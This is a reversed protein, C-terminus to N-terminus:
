SVVVTAIMRPHLLCAYHYTGAKTFTVSYYMSGGFPAGSSLFHSGDYNGADVRVPPPTPEDPSQPQDSAPYGPGGQADTTKPNGRVTGDKDVFIVPVYTPVHFSVTHAPQSGVFWTVKQGVRGHYTSPFFELDEMSDLPNTSDAPATGALIDAGAPIAKGAVADDHVPKLERAFQDLLARARANISSQGPVAASKPKVTISGGMAPGHVLCYFSYEGPKINDALKLQFRNGNNGAYHIFGSNYFPQTGDFDPQNQVAKACPTDGTPVAGRRVYCPQAALQNINPDFFQPMAAFAQAVEPPEESPLPLTGKLYPLLPGMAKDVATGLTVTHPDGTWSQNFTVTDGPHASIFRPFFAEYANAYEDLNFDALVTRTTGSSATSCGPLLAGALVLAGFLLAAGGRM